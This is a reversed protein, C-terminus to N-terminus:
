CWARWLAGLLPSRVEDSPGDGVLAYQLVKYLAAALASALATDIIWTIAPRRAFADPSQKERELPGARTRRVCKVVEDIGPVTRALQRM